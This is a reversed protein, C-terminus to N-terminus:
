CGDQQEQRESNFTKIRLEGIVTARYVIRWKRHNPDCNAAVSLLSRLTMGIHPITVTHSVPDALVPTYENAYGSLEGTKDHIYVKIDLDPYQELLLDTALTCLEKHSSFPYDEKLIELLEQLQSRQLISKYGKNTTLPTLDLAIGLLKLTTKM